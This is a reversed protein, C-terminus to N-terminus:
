GVSSQQSSVLLMEVIDKNGNASALILATYRGKSEQSNVDAGKALLVEAIDKHGRFSAGILATNGTTDKAEVNAGKALLLKVIDIHGQYSAKMLATAGNSDGENVNVRKVLLKKVKSVDGSWSADQLETNPNAKLNSPPAEAKLTQLSTIGCLIIVFLVIRLSRIGAHYRLGMISGKEKLHLNSYM